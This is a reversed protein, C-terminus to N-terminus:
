GASRPPRSMARMSAPPARIQTNSCVAGGSAGVISGAGVSARTFMEPQGQTGFVPLSFAALAYERNRYRGYRITRKIPGYIHGTIEQHNAVFAGRLQQKVRPTVPLNRAERPCTAVFFALSPALACFACAILSPSSVARLKKTEDPGGKRLILSARQGPVRLQARSLGALKPRFPCRGASAAGSADYGQCDLLTGSNVNPGANAEAHQCAPTNPGRGRYKAVNAAVDAIAQDYNSWFARSPKRMGRAPVSGDQARLILETPRSGPKPTIELYRFCQLFCADFPFDVYAAPISGSSGDEYTVGGLRCSTLGSGGV